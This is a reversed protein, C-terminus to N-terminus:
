SFDPRVRKRVSAASWERYLQKRMDMLQSLQPRTYSRSGSPTNITASQAGNMLASIAANCERIMRSTM